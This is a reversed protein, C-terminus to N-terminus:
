RAVEQRAAEVDAAIEEDTLGANQQAMRERLRDIREWVGKQQLKQFKLYEDYPVLVAEPEDQDTVVCSVHSEAVERLVSRLDQELEATRITKHM